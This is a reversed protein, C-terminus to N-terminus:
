GWIGPIRHGCDPCAALAPPKTKSGSRVLRDNLTRFGLRQVLLRGCSPCLTNNADHGPVNGIYVYRLGAKMAVARASELHSVPTPPLNQLRYAPAFRIFHIPVDGGLNTAVWSCFWRIGEPEDSLTPIILVPIELWVGMSRITKIAELVVGLSGRSHDLYFKESFGKVSVSFADVSRCLESLPESMIYGGTSVFVRLGRKRALAATDMLYEFYVIPETYTFAIGTCGTSIANEVIEGPSASFTRTEEVGAQAMEWNQCCKCTLNCGPAAVALVKVGPLVHYLPSKEVPDSHVSCARGYTTVYLKGGINRRVRCFCTEGDKLVGCVPMLPNCPCLTCHVRGGSLREYYRAERLASASLAPRGLCLECLGAGAVAGARLLFERRVLTEEESM